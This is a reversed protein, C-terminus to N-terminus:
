PGAFGQQDRCARLKGVREVHGSDRPFRTPATESRVSPRDARRTRGSLLRGLLRKRREAPDLGREAVTVYGTAAVFVAFQANTVETRDIWFAGVSAERRPGEEPYHDDSGMTFAGGELRAMGRTPDAPDPLPPPACDDAVAPVAALTAALALPAILKRVAM